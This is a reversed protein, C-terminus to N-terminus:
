QNISGDRRLFSRPSQEPINVLQYVKLVKSAFYWKIYSLITTANQKNFCFNSQKLNRKFKMPELISQFVLRYIEPSYNVINIFDVRIQRFEVKNGPSHVWDPMIHCAASAPQRPSLPQGRAGGNHLPQSDRLGDRGRVPHIMIRAVERWEVVVM